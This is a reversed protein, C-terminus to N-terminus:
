GIILVVGYSGFERCHFISLEFYQQSCKMMAPMCRGVFSVTILKKHVKKCLNAGKKAMKQLFSCHRHKGKIHYLFHHGTRAINYKASTTRHIRTKPRQKAFSAMNFTTSAWLAKIFCFLGRLSQPSPKATSPFFYLPKRVVLLWGRLSVM